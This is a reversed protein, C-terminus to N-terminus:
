INKKLQDRLKDLEIRDNKCAHEYAEMEVQELMDLTVDDLVNKIYDKKKNSIEKLKKKLMKNENAYEDKKTLLETYGEKYINLKESTSQVNAKMIGKQKYMDMVTENLRAIRRNYIEEIQTDPDNEIEQLTHINSM